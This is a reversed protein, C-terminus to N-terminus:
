LPGFLEHAAGTTRRAVEDVAVGRLGAIVAAIDAVHRPEVAEPQVGELGISPADTELVLRELPVVEVTRRVRRARSRTVAGGIGLLLGLRLFRHALEPGRSYAHVVGRLGPAFGKLVGLLEEHAQRCHLIVPMRLDVALGLQAELVAQQRGLDAGDVALDLGIEGIAVADAAALAAALRDLDLGEHAVWPHLGLAARVGPREAAAAVGTWSALDYAPAVVGEVGVARARALVGDLDAALPEFSVHCHSDVLIM